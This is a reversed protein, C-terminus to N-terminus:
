HTTKDQYTGLIAELAGIGTAQRELGMKLAVCEIMHGLFVSRAKIAEADSLCEGEMVTAAMLCIIRHLDDSRVSYDSRDGTQEILTLLLTEVIPRDTSRITMSGFSFPM